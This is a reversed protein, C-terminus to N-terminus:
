PPVSSGRRGGVSCDGSCCGFSRSAQFHPASTKKSQEVALGLSMRYELPSKAGLSIKIRKKNYLHMYNDLIDMFEDVSVGQWQGNYFMENKLRGFFGECAANDPTCGKQSMSRTLGAAEMRGIWSPWRYHIGRDSHVVPRESEGLTATAMDLMSKVLGADPSAGITWSVVM